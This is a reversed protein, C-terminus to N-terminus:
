KDGLEEDIASLEEASVSPGVPHSPQSCDTESRSEPAMVSSDAVEVSTSTPAELGEPELEIQIMLFDLLTEEAGLPGAGGGVIRKARAVVLSATNIVESYVFGHQSAL